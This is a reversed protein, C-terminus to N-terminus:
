MNYYNGSEAGNDKYLGQIIYLGIYGSDGISESDWCGDFRFEESCRIGSDTCM